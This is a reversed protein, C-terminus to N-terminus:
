LTADTFMPLKGLMFYVFVSFCACLLADWLASETSFSTEIQLLGFLHMCVLASGSGSGFVDVIQLASTCGLLWVCICYTVLCGFVDAIQLASTYGPLIMCFWASGFCTTSALSAVCLTRVDLVGYGDLFIRCIQAKVVGHFGRYATNVETLVGYRGYELNSIHDQADKLDDALDLRQDNVQPRKAM